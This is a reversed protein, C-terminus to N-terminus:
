PNVQFGTVILIWEGDPARFLNFDIRYDCDPAQCWSVYGDPHRLRGNDM